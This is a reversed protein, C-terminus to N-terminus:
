LMGRASFFRCIPAKDTGPLSSGGYNERYDFAEERQRIPDLQRCRESKMALRKRPNPKSRCKLLDITLQISLVPASAGDHKRTRNMAKM